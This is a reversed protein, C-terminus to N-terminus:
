TLNPVRVDCSVRDPAGPHVTLDRRARFKARPDCQRRSGGPSRPGPFGSLRFRSCGGLYARGEPPDPSHYLRPCPPSGHRAEGVGTLRVAAPAEHSPVACFRGPISVGPLVIRGDRDSQPAPSDSAYGARPPGARRRSVLPATFCRPVGFAWPTRPRAGTGCPDGPLSARSACRRHHFLHFPGWSPPAEPLALSVVVSLAPFPSSGHGSLDFPEVQPSPSAAYTVGVPVFCLDSPRYRRSHWPVRAGGCSDDVM